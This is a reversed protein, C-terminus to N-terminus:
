AVDEESVVVVINEGESASIAASHRTGFNRITKTSKIMAGYAKMKGNRGIIVAGDMLALSELLKPPFEKAAATIIIKDFKKGEIGRTGDM